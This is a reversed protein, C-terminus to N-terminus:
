QSIVDRDQQDAMPQSDAIRNNANQTCASLFIATSLSALLTYLYKKKM